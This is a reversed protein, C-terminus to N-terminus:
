SQESRPRGCEPCRAATIGCLDYGCAACKGRAVRGHARIRLILRRVWLVLPWLMLVLLFWIPFTILWGRRVLGIPRSYIYSAGFGATTQRPNFEWWLSANRGAIWRRSPSTMAGAPGGGVERMKGIGVRGNLVSVGKFTYDWGTSSSFRTERGFAHAAELRSMLWVVILLVIAAFNAIELAIVIFRRRRTM